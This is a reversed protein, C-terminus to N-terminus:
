KTTTAKKLAAVDIQLQQILPTQTDVKGQAAAVEDQLKKITALQKHVLGNAEAAIQQASTVAADRAAAIEVIQANLAEVEAMLSTNIGAIIQPLTYGEKDAAAMNLQRESVTPRGFGDTSKAKVVLHWAPPRKDHPDRGRFLFEDIWTNAM